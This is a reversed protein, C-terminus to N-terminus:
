KKNQHLGRHCLFCLTQLNDITSEEGSIHHLELVAGSQPSSGCLCCKFGDREMVKYRINASVSKRQYKMSEPKKQYIMRGREIANIKARSASRLYKGRKAWDQITKDTTVINLRKKLYEALERGSRGSLYEKKIFEEPDREGARYLDYWLGRKKTNM